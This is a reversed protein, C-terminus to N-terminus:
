VVSPKRIFSTHGLLYGTNPPDMAQCSRNQQLRDLVNADARSAAALLSELPYHFIAGLLLEGELEAAPHQV